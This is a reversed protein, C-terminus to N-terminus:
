AFNSSQSDGFILFPTVLTDDLKKLHATHGNPGLPLSLCPHV